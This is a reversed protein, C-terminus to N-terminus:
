KSPEKINDLERKSDLSKRHNNDSQRQVLDMPELGLLRRVLAKLVLYVFIPNTTLYRKWLRKPEQILRYLWELGLKSVWNPARKHLGSAIDLSGGVGICVPVKLKELNKSIFKEKLPTTMGVFLIDPDAERISTVIQRDNELDFYGHNWGVINLNSYEKQLNEVAKNLVKQRAGLLYVRYGDSAAEQILRFFLSVASVPERVPQGILRTAYYIGWSDATLLDSTQYVWMLKPNSLSWVFLAANLSFIMRPKGEEIFKKIQSISEGLTLNNFKYGFFESENKKLKKNGGLNLHDDREESSKGQEEPIEQEDSPKDPSIPPDNTFGPSLAKGLKQSLILRYISSLKDSILQQNFNEKVQQYAAKGMKQRRQPNKILKTLASALSEVDGIPVLLGNKGHEIIEPIGGVETAVIPLGHSMAELMSVPLAESHSPLVFIDSREFIQDKEDGVVPGKFEVLDSVGLQKCKHKLKKTDGQGCLNLKVVPDDCNLSAAVSSIASVLDRVGKEPSIDGLFLVNVEEQKHKISLFEQDRVDVPNPLVFISQNGSLKRVEAIAQEYLVLIACARGLISNVMQKRFRYHEAWKILHRSHFQLIYPKRLCHALLALLAKRYFSAGHAMHLHLIDIPKVTILYLFRPLAALFYLFKRPISGPRWTPLYWIHHSNSIRSSNLITNAVASIGGYEGPRPGAMLVSVRKDENAAKNLKNLKTQLM